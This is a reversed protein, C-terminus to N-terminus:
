RLEGVRGLSGVRDVIRGLPGRGTAPRATGSDAPDRPSGQPLRVQRPRARTLLDQAVRLEQDIVAVIEDVLASAPLLPQAPTQVREVRGELRLTM